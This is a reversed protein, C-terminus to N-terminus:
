GPPMTVVGASPCQVNRVRPFAVVCRVAAEDIRPAVALAVCLAVVASLSGIPASALRTKALNFPASPHLSGRLSSAVGGGGHGNCPENRSVSGRLSEAPSTVAGPQSQIRQSEFRNPQWTRSTRSLATITGGSRAPSTRNEHASTTAAM